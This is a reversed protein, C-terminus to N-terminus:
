SLKSKSNLILSYLQTGFFVIFVFPFVIWIGNPLLFLFLFQNWNLHAVRQSGNCLETYQLMYLVTKWFTLASVFFGVLM